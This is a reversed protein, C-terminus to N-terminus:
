NQDTHSGAPVHARAHHMDCLRCGPCISVRNEFVRLIAEAVGRRGGLHLIVKRPSVTILASMLLDEYDVENDALDPALGELYDNDIVAGNADLLRFLGGPRVVVHVEDIKPEQIDVFYKLLRIFENYEREIMYDDVAAETATRIEELYSKLRFRVFGELVLSGDTDLYDLIKFLINNRRHVAPKPEVQGETGQHDMIGSAFTAIKQREAEDFYPYREQLTKAVLEREMDFIIADAVASAVHYRVIDRQGAPIGHGPDRLNLCLFTLPGCSRETMDVQIGKDCLRRVKCALRDRVSDTHDQVGIAIVEVLIM